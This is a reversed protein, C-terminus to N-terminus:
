QGHRDEDLWRCVLPRVVVRDCSNAMRAALEDGTLTRLPGLACDGHMAQALCTPVDTRQTQVFGERQMELILGVHGEEWLQLAM